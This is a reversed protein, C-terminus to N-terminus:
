KFSAGLSAGQAAGGLTGFLINLPNPKPATPLTGLIRQYTDGRVADAQRQLQRGSWVRNRVIAAVYDAEGASVEDVLSQVTNGAIGSDAAASRVAARAQSAASGAQKISEVAASTEQVEREQLAAYQQYSEKNAELKTTEFRKKEFRRQAKQAQAGMLGQGLAAGGMIAAGAAPNCM